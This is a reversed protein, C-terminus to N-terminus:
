LFSLTEGSAIIAAPFLLISFVYGSISFYKVLLSSSITAADAAEIKNMLEPGITSASFISLSKIEDESSFVAPTASLLSVSLM